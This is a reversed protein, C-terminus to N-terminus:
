VNKVVEKIDLEEELLHFSVEYYDYPERQSGTKHQLSNLIVEKGSVESIYAQVLKKVIASDLNTKLDM